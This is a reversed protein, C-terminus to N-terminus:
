GHYEVWLLPIPVIFSTVAILVEICDYLTVVFQDEELVNVKFQIANTFVTVEIEEIGSVQKLATLVLTEWLDFDKKSARQLLNITKKGSELYINTTTM